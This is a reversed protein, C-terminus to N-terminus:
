KAKLATDFIYVWSNTEGPVSPGHVWILNHKTNIRWIRHGCSRRREAGMHGPMKTGRLPAIKRGINKSGGRRHSKTTGHTNPAKKFKHRVISGQFGRDISKGHVDVYDGVRFHTAVLPTGPALKSNPTIFFKALKNKPMVGAQTFLGNYASSFKRPDANEAGVILVGFQKWYDYRYWPRCIKQFEEPSYYKIVHNDVVQLVTTLLRVGTKTWMPYNGIKRAILGCRKTNEDIEGPEFQKVKLPSENEKLTYSEQIYKDVFQKNEDTINEDSTDAEPKPIWWWRYTTRRKKVGRGVERSQILNCTIPSLLNINTNHNKIISLNNKTFLSRFLSM